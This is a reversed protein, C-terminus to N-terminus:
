PMRFVVHSIVQKSYKESGDVIQNETFPECFSM